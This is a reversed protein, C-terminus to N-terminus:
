ENARLAASVEAAEHELMTRSRQFDLDSLKGALHEFHLDKLNDYVAKRREQLAERLAAQPGGDAADPVATFVWYGIACT